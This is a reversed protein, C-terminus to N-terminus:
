RSDRVLLVAGAASTTASLAQSSIAAAPACTNRGSWSPPSSQDFM